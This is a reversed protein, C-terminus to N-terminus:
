INVEINALASLFQSKTAPVPTGSNLVFWGDEKQLDFNDKRKM